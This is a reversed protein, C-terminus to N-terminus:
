TNEKIGHAAEIARTLAHEYTQHKNLCFAIHADRAAQGIQENSLPKRQAIPCTYIAVDDPNRKDAYMEWGPTRYHRAGVLERWNTWAVPEQQAPKVPEPVYGEWFDPKALETEFATIARERQEDLDAPVYAAKLVELALKIEEKSM